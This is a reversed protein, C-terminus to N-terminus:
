YATTPYEKLGTLESQIKLLLGLTENIYITFDYPFNYCFYYEYYNPVDNKFQNDLLEWGLSYSMFRDFSTPIESKYILHKNKEIIELIKNQTPIKYTDIYHKWRKQDDESLDSLKDKGNEFVHMRGMEDLVLHFRISDERLLSSIPGYFQSIQKDILEKKWINKQFAIEYEKEKEQSKLSQKYPIIWGFVVFILGIVTLCLEIIKFIIEVEDM